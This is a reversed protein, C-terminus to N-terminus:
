KCGTVKAACLVMSAPVTGTKQTTPDFYTYQQTISDYGTFIVCHTSGNQTTGTLYAGVIIGNESGTPQGNFFGAVSGLTTWQSGETNFCNALYQFTENYLKGYGNEDFTVFIPGQDKGEDKHTGEWGDNPNGSGTVYDNAYDEYTWDPHCGYKRNLYELCNFYCNGDSGYGGWLRGQEERPLREFENLQGVALRKLKKM